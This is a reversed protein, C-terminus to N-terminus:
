YVVVHKLGQPGDDPLYVFAFINNSVLIYGYWHVNYM